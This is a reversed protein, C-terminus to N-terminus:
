KPPDRGPGHHRWRIWRTVHTVRAASSRQSLRLAIFTITRSNPLSTRDHPQLTNSTESMPTGRTKLHLTKSVGGDELWPVESETLQM